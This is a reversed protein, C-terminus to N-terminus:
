NNKDYVYIEEAIEYHCGCNDCWSFRCPHGSTCDVNIKKKSLYRETAYFIGKKEGTVCIKYIYM